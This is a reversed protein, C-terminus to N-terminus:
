PADDRLSLPTTRTWNTCGRKWRLSRAHHMTSIVGLGRGRRRDTGCVADQQGTGACQSPAGADTFVLQGVERVSGCVAHADPWFLV